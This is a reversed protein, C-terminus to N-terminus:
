LGENVLHPLALAAPRSVEVLATLVYISGTIYNDTGIKGAPIGRTIFAEIIDLMLNRLKFLQNVRMFVNMPIERFPDNTGIVNFKAHITLQLRYNWIDELAVYFRKLQQMSLNMFWEFDAYNGLENIRQFIRVARNRLEQEPTIV